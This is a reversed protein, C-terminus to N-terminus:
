PTEFARAPEFTCCRDGDLRCASLRVGEGLVKEIFMNEMACVSRDQEALEPYPCALATLVPLQGSVDAQFPIRREGMLGALSQLREGPSDGSVRDRYAEALRESVRGLLGRRVEPDQIRRIEEWLVQVLVDYNTGASREGFRTLSYHHTPRGRGEPASTREVLNQEMLRSLRQRVATATVGTFEVLEGITASPRSRLYDVITQDNLEQPAVPLM